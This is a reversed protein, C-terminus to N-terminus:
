LRGGEGLEMGQHPGAVPCSRFRRTPSPRAASHGPARLCPTQYPYPRAPRGPRFAPGTIPASGRGRRRPESSCMPLHRPAVGALAEPSTRPSTGPPGSESDRASGPPALAPVVGSGAGPSALRWAAREGGRGCGAGCGGLPKAARGGCGGRWGVPRGGCGGARGGGGGGCGGGWGCPGGCCAGLWCRGWGVSPGGVSKCTASSSGASSVGAGHAPRHPGGGGARGRRVTRVRGWAAARDCGGARLGDGREHGVDPSPAGWWPGAALHTGPYARRRLTHVLTCVMPGRWAQPPTCWRACRTFVPTLPPPSVGRSPRGMSVLGAVTGAVGGGRGWARGPAAGPRGDAAAAWPSPALALGGGRRGRRRGGLAGVAAPAGRGVERGPPRTPGDGYFDADHLWARHGGERAREAAEPPVPVRGLAALRLRAPGPPRLPLWVAESPRSGDDLAATAVAV